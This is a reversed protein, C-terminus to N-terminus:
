PLRAEPRPPGLGLPPYTLALLLALVALTGTLLYAHRMAATTADVLHALDGAAVTARWQADM